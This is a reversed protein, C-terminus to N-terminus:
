VALAALDAALQRLPSSPLSGYRVYQGRIEGCVIIFLM